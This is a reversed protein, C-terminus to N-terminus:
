ELAKNLKDIDENKAILGWAIFDIKWNNDIKVFQSTHRLPILPSWDYLDIYDVIIASKGDAALKIKRIDIVYSYNATTDSFLETYMDILATKDMIESPDTGFFMGDDAILETLVDVDKTNWANMYKDDLQIITENLVSLDVSETKVNQNCGATIIVAIILFFYINKM